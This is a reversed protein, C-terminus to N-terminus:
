QSGRDLLSRIRPALKAATKRQGSLTPHVSDLFDRRTLHDHLDMYELGLESAENELWDVYDLFDDTPYRVNYCDGRPEHVVPWNVVLVEVGTEARLQALYRLMNWDKWNVYKGEFSRLTKRCSYRSGTRHTRPIKEEFEPFMKQRLLKATQEVALRVFTGVERFEIWSAWPRVSAAQADRYLRFPEEFTPPPDAALQTVLRSNSDFFTALPPYPYPALHAFDDFTVGYVIFDPRYALSESLIMAEKTQYTFVFGLNFLHAPVRQSEFKQNVFGVASREYPWPFGFISSNGIVFIRKEDPVRPERWCVEHQRFLLNLWLVGTKDVNQLRPRSGSLPPLCVESWASSADGAFVLAVLLFQLLRLRLRRLRLTKGYSAIASSPSMSSSRLTM